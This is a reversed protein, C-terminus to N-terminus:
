TATSILHGSFYNLDHGIYLSVTGTFRVEITDGKEMRVLLSGYFGTYRSSSSAQYHSSRGSSIAAGNIYFAIMGNSGNPSAIDTLLSCDYRYLGSRKAIFVGTQTNYDGSNDLQIQEFVLTSGSQFSNINFAHFAPFSQRSRDDASRLFASTDEYIVEGNGLRIEGTDGNKLAIFVWVEDQPITFSQLYDVLRFNESKSDSNEGIPLCYYLAHWNQLQIGGNAVTADSAGGFGPVISGDGPQTIEFFGSTSYHSGNGLSTSIFRGTWALRSSAGDFTVSTPGSLMPAQSYLATRTESVVGNDSLGNPFDARGSDKDLILGDHFTSGDPSVKFHFNDDGTLGIEARGSFGNQFLFSATGGVSGKNLVARIDDTENSFLVADSRVSLRNSTDPTANIGFLMQNEIAGSGSIAIWESGDFAFLTAEDVIYAQWGKKPAIYVFAGDQFAAIENTRGTWDGTANDPILYLDGNQPNTPLAVISRSNAVMQTLLDLRRIAENHTVHKQAQSPMILPLSLNHTEDM